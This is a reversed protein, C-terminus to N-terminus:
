RQLEQPAVKSEWWGGGGGWKGQMHSPERRFLQRSNLMSVETIAEISQKKSKITETLTDKFEKGFSAKDHKEFFSVKEKLLAAVQTISKGTLVLLVSKRGECMTNMCYEVLVVAKELIELVMDMQVAPTNDDNATNVNEIM